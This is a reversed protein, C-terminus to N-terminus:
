LKGAARSALLLAEDCEYDAFATGVRNTEYSYIARYYYFAVGLLDHAEAFKIAEQCLHILSQRSKKAVSLSHRADVIKQAMTYMTEFKATNTM